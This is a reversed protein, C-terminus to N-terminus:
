EKNGPLINKESWIKQEIARLRNRVRDEEARLSTLENWRPDSILEQYKKAEPPLPSLKEYQELLQIVDKREQISAQHHMPTNAEYYYKGHVEAIAMGLERPLQHELERSEAYAPALEKQLGDRKIMLEREEKKLEEQEHNLDGLEQPSLKRNEDREMGKRAAEVQEETFELREEQHQAGKKTAEFDSIARKESLDAKQDSTFKERM